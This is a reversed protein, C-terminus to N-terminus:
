SKPVPSLFIRWLVRSDAVNVDNGGKTATMKEFVDWQWNNEARSTFDGLHLHLSAMQTETLLDSSHCGVTVFEPFCCTRHPSTRQVSIFFTYCVLRRWFWRLSLFIILVAKGKLQVPLIQSSQKRTTRDTRPTLGLASRQSTSTCSYMGQYGAGM